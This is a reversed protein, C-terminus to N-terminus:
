LCHSLSYGLSSPIRPKLCGGLKLFVEQECLSPCSHDLKAAQCGLLLSLRSYGHTEYRLINGAHSLFINNLNWKVQAYGSM